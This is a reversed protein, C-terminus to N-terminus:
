ETPDHYATERADTWPLPGKKAMLNTNQYHASGAKTRRMILAAEMGIIRLPLQTGGIIQMSM